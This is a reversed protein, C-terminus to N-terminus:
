EWALSKDKYVDIINRVPAFERVAGWGTVARTISFDKAINITIIEANNKRRKSFSPSKRFSEKATVVLKNEGNNMMNLAKISGDELLKSFKTRFYNYEEDEMYGYVPAYEVFHGAISFTMDLFLPQTDKYIQELTYSEMSYPSGEGNTHGLINRGIETCVNRSSKCFDRIEQAILDEIESLAFKNGRSRARDDEYKSHLQSVMSIFENVEVEYSDTLNRENFDKVYEEYNETILNSLHLRNVESAEQEIAKLLREYDYESSKFADERIMRMKSRTNKIKSVTEQYKSKQALSGLVELNAYSINCLLFLGLTIVKKSINMINKRTPM